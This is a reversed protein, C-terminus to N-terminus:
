GAIAGLIREAVDARCILLDPLYPNPQNYQLATGDVRSCHLGAAAAVGVPAASDWEWQGGAHVYADAEGRLVAMAKAGASGMPVLQAGLERELSPAFDPPRSASV